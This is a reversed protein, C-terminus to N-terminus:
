PKKTLFEVRVDAFFEDKEPKPGEHGFRLMVELMPKGQLPGISAFEFELRRFGRSDDGASTLRYLDYHIFNFIGDTEKILFTPGVVSGGQDQLAVQCEYRRRNGDILKFPCIRDYLNVDQGFRPTGPVPLPLVPIPRFIRYSQDYVVGPPADGADTGDVPLDPHGPIEMRIKFNCPDNGLGGNAGLVNVDVYGKQPLPIPIAQNLTPDGSTWGSSWAKSGDILVTIQNDAHFVRLVAQTAEPPAAIWKLSM